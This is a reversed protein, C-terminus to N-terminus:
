PGRMCSRRRETGATAIYGGNRRIAPLIEEFVLKEFAVAEPLTSGCILRMVDSESIIRLEQKGGATMLPYRKVVGKCHRNMADTANVYGLRECVDKGVFWPENNVNVVRVEHNQFNFIQIEKM